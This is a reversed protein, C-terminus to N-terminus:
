DSVKSCNECPYKRYEGHVIARHRLLSPRYCYSKPCHECRFADKPYHHTAVLHVDLIMMWRRRLQHNKLQHTLRIFPRSNMLLSDSDIGIFFALFARTLAKDSSIM